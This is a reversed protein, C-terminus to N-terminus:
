ACCYSRSYQTYYSIKGTSSTYSYTTATSSQDVYFNPYSTPCYYNNKRLNSVDVDKLLLCKPGTFNLPDPDPNYKISDYTRQGSQYCETTTIYSSNYNTGYCNGVPLPGSAPSGNKNYDMKTLGITDNKFKPNPPITGCDKKKFGSVGPACTFSEFFYYYSFYVIILIIITFVIINKNVGGLYVKM